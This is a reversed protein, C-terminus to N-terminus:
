GQRHAYRALPALLTPVMLPIPSTAKRRTYTKYVKKGARLLENVTPSVGVLKALAALETPTLAKLDEEDYRSLPLGHVRVHCALEHVVQEMLEQRRIVSPVAVGLEAALEVLESEPLNELMARENPTFFESM